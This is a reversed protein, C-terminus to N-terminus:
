PSAPVAYLLLSGDGASPLGLGAPLNEGRRQATRLIDSPAGIARADGSPRRVPPAAGIRRHSSIAAVTPGEHPGAPATAQNRGVSGDRQGPRSVYGAVSAAASSRLGTNAITRPRGTAGLEM